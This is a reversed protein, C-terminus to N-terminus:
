KVGKGAPTRAPRRSRHYVEFTTAPEDSNELTYARLADSTKQVQALLRKVDAKEEESLRGACKKLVSQFQCEIQSSPEEQAFADSTSSSPRAATAGPVAVATAALAAGRAFSRRSIKKKNQSSSM